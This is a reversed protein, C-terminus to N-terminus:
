RRVETIEEFDLDIQIGDGFADSFLQKFHPKNKSVRLLGGVQQIHEKLVVEDSLDDFFQHHKFKRDKNADMLKAYVEKPLAKYIYTSIFQAMPMSAEWRYGTVRCAERQWQPKFHMTWEKPNALIHDVLSKFRQNREGSARHVGFFEDARSEISEAMSAIAIAKAKLNGQMAMNFWYESADAIAVPIFPVGSKGASIKYCESDAHPLDKLSKVGMIRLLSNAPEEIADTVNRGALRYSGNPLMYVGIPTSGLLISGRVAKITTAM